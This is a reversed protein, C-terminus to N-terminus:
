ERMGGVGETQRLQRPVQMRFLKKTEKKVYINNDLQAGPCATIQLMLRLGYGAVNPGGLALM